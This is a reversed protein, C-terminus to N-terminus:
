LLDEMKQDQFILEGEEIVWGFKEIDIVSQCYPCKVFASTIHRNNIFAKDAINIYVMKKTSTYQNAMRQEQEETQQYVRCLRITPLYSNCKECFPVLM